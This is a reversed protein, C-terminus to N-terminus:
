SRSVFFIANPTTGILAISLFALWMMVLFPQAAGKALLSLHSSTITIESALTVTMGEPIAITDGDAASACLARLTGEGDDASSSVIHTEALVPFLAALM